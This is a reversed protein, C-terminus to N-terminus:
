PKPPNMGASAYMRALEHQVQEAMSPAGPTGPGQGSNPAAYRLGDAPPPTTRALYGRQELLGTVGDRIAADDPTGAATVFRSPDLFRLADEPDQLREAALTRVRDAVVQAASRAGVQDLQQRLPATAAEVAQRIQDAIDGGNSPAPPRAPSPSTAPNAPPPPAPRQELDRRAEDRQRRVRDLARRGPDGLANWEEESVGDPRTPANPDPTPAPPQGTAPPAAVAPTPAAPSPPAPNPSPTSGPPAPFTM